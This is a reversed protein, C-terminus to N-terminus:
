YNEDEIENVLEERDIHLVECLDDITQDLIYTQDINKIGMTNLKCLYVNINEFIYRQPYTEEMLLALRRINNITNERRKIRRYDELIIANKLRLKIRTGM